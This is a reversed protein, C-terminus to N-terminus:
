CLKDTDFDIFVDGYDNSHSFVKAKAWRDGHCREKALRVKIARVTRKGNYIVSNGTEGEGSVIHIENTALLENFKSM